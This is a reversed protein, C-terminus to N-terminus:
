TSSQQSIACFRMQGARSIHPGKKIGKILIQARHQAETHEDLESSQAHKSVQTNIYISLHKCRAQAM